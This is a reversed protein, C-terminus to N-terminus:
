SVGHTVLSSYHTSASCTMAMPVSASQKSLGRTKVPVRGVSRAGPCRMNNMTKMITTKMIALGQQFINLTSAVLQVTQYVCM